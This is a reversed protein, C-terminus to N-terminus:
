QSMSRQSSGSDHAPRVRYACRRAGALIHEDREVSVDQGLIDRFISLEARCFGQCLEAAACIPCHNEVFLWGDGDEAKTWEAMYGERSRIDRLSSLREEISQAGSVAQEYLKRTETERAGIVRDLADEGLLDRIGKILGLTLDAHADPFHSRSAPTLHWVQRPRGVGVSVSQATVLGDDGLKLLLQRANEGTTGLRQGLQAATQPGRMKIELLVREGALGSQKELSHSSM